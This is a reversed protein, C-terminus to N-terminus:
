QAPCGSQVTNVLRKTDFGAATLDAYIQAVTDQPLTPTRALITVAGYYGGGSVVAWSYDAAVDVVYYNPSVAPVGSISVFFEGPHGYVARARGKRTEVKATTSGRRCTNVVDLYHRNSQETYTATVCECGRQYLPQTSAIQSPLIIGNIIFLSSQRRGPMVLGRPRTDGVEFWTGLYQSLSFNPVPTRSAHDWAAWQLPPQPERFGASPHDTLCEASVAPRTGTASAYLIGALTLFLSSLQM